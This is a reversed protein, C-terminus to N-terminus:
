DLGFAFRGFDATVFTVRIALAGFGSGAAVGGLGTVVLTGFGAGTTVGAGGAFASTTLNTGCGTRLGACSTAVAGAGVSAEGASGRTVVERRGGARRSRLDGLATEQLADVRQIQKAASLPSRHAWRRQSGRCPRGFGLRHLLRGGSGLRRGAERRRQGVSRRSAVGIPRRGFGSGPITGLGLTRKRLPHLRLLRMPQGFRHLGITQRRLRIRAKKLRMVIQAQRGGFGAVERRRQRRIFVRQRDLRLREIRAVIKRQHELLRVVQGVGDILQFSDQGTIRVLGAGVQREAIEVRLLEVLRGFRALMIQLHQFDLRTM